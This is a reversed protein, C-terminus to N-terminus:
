VFLWTQALTPRNAKQTKVDPLAGNSWASTETTNM